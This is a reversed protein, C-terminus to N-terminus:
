ANKASFSGKERTKQEHMYVVIYALPGRAWLSGLDNWDELDFAKTDIWKHFCVKWYLIFDLIM